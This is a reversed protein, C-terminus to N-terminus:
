GFNKFKILLKQIASAWDGEKDQRVIEVFDYWISKEDDIFWRWENAYPLLMYTPLGIAGAMHVPSSDISILFDLNEFISATDNFDGIEDYLDVIFPYKACETHSDDKQVSYFVANDKFYEFVPELCEIPMSRNFFTRTGERNGHWNIGIKLKNHSFFKQKFKETVAEEAKLYGSTYPVFENFDLNFFQLLHMPTVAYDYDTFIVSSDIIELYPYNNKFLRHLTKPLIIYLKKFAEKAYDLYRAFMLMDGLGGPVFICLSSDEHKEGNWQNKYYQPMIKTM